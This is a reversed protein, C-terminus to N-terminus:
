LLRTCRLNICWYNENKRITAASLNLGKVEQAVPVIYPEFHHRLMRLWSDLVIKLSLSSAYYYKNYMIISENILNYNTTKWKTTFYPLPFYSRWILFFSSNNVKISNDTILGRLASWCKKTWCWFCANGRKLFEFHNLFWVSKQLFKLMKKPKPFQVMWLFVCNPM